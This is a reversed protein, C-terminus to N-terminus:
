APAPATARGYVMLSIAALMLGSLLLFLTQPGATTGVTSALVPFLIQSGYLAFTMVGMASGMDANPGIAEIAAGYGAAGFIAIGMGMLGMGAVAGYVAGSLGIILCGVGTLVLGLFVMGITGAIRHVQSYSGSGLLSCIAMVGLLRGIRAPEQVGISNLYFPTYMSSAVMALGVLGAVLLLPVPVGALLGASSASLGGAEGRRESASMKPLRLMLLATPLLILHMLFAARWSIQALAGVLPFVAICIGGGFFSTLGLLLPRQDVPVKAIGAMGATFGGAVGLSLIVRFAVVPILSTCIVPGIGGITFLLLAFLYVTRVGYKSVLRGAIPSAIAFVPAVIGGILQVLLDAHPVDKYSELLTPLASGMSFLGIAVFTGAALLAGKGGLGLHDWRRETTHQVTM